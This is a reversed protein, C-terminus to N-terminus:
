KRKQFRFQSTAIRKPIAARCLLNTGSFASKEVKTPQRPLTGQPILFFLKLDTMNLCIGITQHSYRVFRDLPDQSLKDGNLFYFSLIVSPLIYLGTPLHLMITTPRLTTHMNDTVTANIPQTVCHSADTSGTGTSM